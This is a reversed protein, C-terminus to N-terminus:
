REAREIRPLFAALAFSIGFLVVVLAFWDFSAPLVLRATIQHLGTMLRFPIDTYAIGWFVAVLLLPLGVRLIRQWRRKGPLPWGFYRQGKLLSTVLVGIYLLLLAGSAGSAFLITNSLRKECYDPSGTKLSQFWACRVDTYLEEGLDSNTLVVLGEGRNTMGDIHAKWGVNSGGHQALYTGDPLTELAYGLGQKEDTNPIPKLMNRLTEPSLITRGPPEGEAGPMMAAVFRAMDSATAYLGAPALETFRYDPLPQGLTNYATAVSLKPSWGYHSSNMGLPSLIQEQMFTAFDQGSVEEVVLQLLTYGGGSYRWASGPEQILRVDGSGNTNGSLSAELSPLPYEPEWGPYGGLSLGATHSFLREVTVGNVDFASPPLHWRTLYSDIPTNLALKGDQVLKMVGWASIVKSVSAVQFATDDTVPTGSAKNALGFNQTWVVHGNHVLSVAVGPVGYQQMWAPIQEGMQQIFSDTDESPVASTTPTATWLAGILTLLMSLRIM